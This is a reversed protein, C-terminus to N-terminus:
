EHLILLHFTVRYWTNCLIINNQFFVFNSEENCLLIGIFTIHTSTCIVTFYSNYLFKENTMLKYALIYPDYPSWWWAMFYLLTIATFEWCVASWLKINLHCEAVDELGKVKLSLVVVTWWVSPQTLDVALGTAFVFMGLWLLFTVRHV